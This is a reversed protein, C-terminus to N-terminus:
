NSIYKTGVLFQGARRDCQRNNKLDKKKLGNIM